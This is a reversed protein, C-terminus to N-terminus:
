KKTATVLRLAQTAIAASVNKSKALVRIDNARLLPLMKMAHTLPTKPNSVLALKVLYSRTMDKSTAITRIVDDCVTRSSAAAAVEQETVRPNRIAATAVVRNRDRVLISRAEKNGRIALAVKKAVNLTTILKYVPIRHPAAPGDAKGDPTAAPAEEASPTGPPSGRELAETVAALREEDVAEEDTLSQLEPPLEIHAAAQLMEDSTLRALAEESEPMDEYVVGARALFDFLRDLSSRLINPNNRLARVIAESELCRQQNNSIIEAIRESATLAVAALAETPASQSLVLKELLDDRGALMPALRTLAAAALSGDLAATLIKDPLKGLSTTAAAALAADSDLALGCLVTVLDRPPLPALGRAAMMRMPAPSAPDLHKRHAEPLSALLEALSM